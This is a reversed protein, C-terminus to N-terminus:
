CKHIPNTTEINNNKFRKNYSNHKIFKNNNNYIKAKAIFRSFMKIWVLSRSKMFLKNRYFLYQEYTPINTATVLDNKEPYCSLARAPDEQVSVRVTNCFHLCRYVSCGRTTASEYLGGM